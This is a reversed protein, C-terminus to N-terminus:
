VVILNSDFAFSTLWFTERISVMLFVDVLFM